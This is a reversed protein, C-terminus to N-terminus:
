MMSVGQGVCRVDWVSATSCPLGTSREEEGDRYM